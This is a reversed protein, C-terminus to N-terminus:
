CGPRRNAKHRQCLVGCRLTRGGLAKMEDRLVTADVRRTSNAVHTTAIWFPCARREGDFGVSYCRLSEQHDDVVPCVDPVVDLSHDVHEDISAQIFGAM